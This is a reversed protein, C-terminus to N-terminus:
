SETLHFIIVDALYIGRQCIDLIEKRELKHFYKGTITKSERKREIQRIVCERRGDEIHTHKTDTNKACIQTKYRQEYIKKPTDIISHIGGEFLSCLEQGASKKRRSM